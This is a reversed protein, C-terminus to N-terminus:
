EFKHGKHKASPDSVKLNKNVVLQLIIICTVVIILPSSSNVSLSSKFFYLFCFSTFKAKWKNSVPHIFKSKMHLAYCTLWFM